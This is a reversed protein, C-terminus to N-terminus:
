FKTPSTASSAIGRNFSVADGGVEQQGSRGGTREVTTLAGLGRALKSDVPPKYDIKFEEDNGCHGRLLRHDAGGGRGGRRGGPPWRPGVISRVVLDAVTSLPLVYTRRRRYPRVEFLGAARDIIVTGHNVGSALDLRGV